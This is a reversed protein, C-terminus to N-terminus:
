RLRVDICSCNQSIFDIYRPIKFIIIFKLAYTFHILVNAISIYKITQLILSGRDILITPIYMYTGYKKRLMLRLIKCKCIKKQFYRFLLLGKIIARDCVSPFLILSPQLLLSPWPSTLLHIDCSSKPFVEPHNSLTTETCLLVYSQHGM